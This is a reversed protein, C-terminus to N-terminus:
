KIVLPVQFTLELLLLILELTYYVQDDFADRVSQEM